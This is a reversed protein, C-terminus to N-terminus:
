LLGWVVETANREMWRPPLRAAVICARRCNQAFAALYADNWIHPSFSQAQTFARWHNEIGVPEVLFSVRPDSLFTDYKQWAEPLTVAHKGFVCPNTALRLFGQQTLRCFYCIENSLADFWTKANPHHIHSDFPSSGPECSQPTLLRFLQCGCDFQGITSGANQVGCGRLILGHQL